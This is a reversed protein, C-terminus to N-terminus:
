VSTQCVRLFTQSNLAKMSDYLIAQGLSNGSNISIELCMGICTGLTLMKSSVFYLKGKRYPFRPKNGM